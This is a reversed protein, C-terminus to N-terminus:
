TKLSKINDGLQYYGPKELQIELAGAAAAMTFGSNPSPSNRADRIM